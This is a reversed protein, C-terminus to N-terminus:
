NEHHTRTTLDRASTEHQPRTSLTTSLQGQRLRGPGRRVGARPREGPVREQPGVFPCRGSRDEIVHHVGITVTRRTTSLDIEYNVGDLGFGVSEEAEGGDVDDVLIVQVKQAM